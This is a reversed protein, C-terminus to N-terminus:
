NYNNNMKLEMELQELYTEFGLSKFFNSTSVCKRDVNIVYFTNGHNKALQSILTSAIGKKRHKKDTALQQIRKSVPNYIVYAVLESKFYAGM